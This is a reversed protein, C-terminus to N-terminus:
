HLEQKHLSKYEKLHFEEGIETTYVAGLESANLRKKLIENNLNPDIALALISSEDLTVSEGLESSYYDNYAAVINQKMGEDMRDFIRSRVTKVRNIYENPSVQNGVMTAYIERSKQKAYGGLGQGVLSAKVQEFGAVYDSENIRIAGTETNVIGPFVTQYEPIERMAATAATASGDGEIFGKIYADVLKDANGGAFSKLWPLRLYVQNPSLNLPEEEEVTATTEAPATYNSGGVLSESERIAREKDQYYGSGELKAIFAKGADTEDDVEIPTLQDRRYYSLIAM